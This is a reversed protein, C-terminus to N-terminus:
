VQFSIRKSARRDKNNMAGAGPLNPAIAAPTNIVPEIGVKAINNINNGIGVISTRMSSKLFRSEDGILKAKRERARKEEELRKMEPDEELDRGLYVKRQTNYIRRRWARMRLIRQRWQYEDQDPFYVIKLWIFTPLFFLISCYTIVLNKQFSNFLNTAGLSYLVMFIGVINCLSCLAFYRWKKVQYAEEHEVAKVNEEAHDIILDKQPAADPRYVYNQDIENIHEPVMEIDFDDLRANEIVAKFVKTTTEKVAKAAVLSLGGESYKNARFSPRRSQQNSEKRSM